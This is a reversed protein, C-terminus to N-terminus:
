WVSIENFFVRTGGSYLSVTLSSPVFSGARYVPKCEYRDALGDNFMKQAILDTRNKLEAAPQPVFLRNEEPIRAGTFDPIIVGQELSGDSYERLAKGLADVASVDTVQLSKVMRYRYDSGCSWPSEAEMRYTVSVVENGRIVIAVGHEKEFKAEFGLVYAPEEGYPLPIILQGSDLDALVTTRDMQYKRAAQEGCGPVIFDDILADCIKGRLEESMSCINKICKDAYTGYIGPAKIIELNQNLTESVRKETVGAATGLMRWENWCRCFVSSEEIRKEIRAYIDASYDICYYVKWPNRIQVYYDYEFRRLPDGPFTNGQVFYVRIFEQIEPIFDSLGIKGDLEDAIFVAPNIGEILLGAINVSDTLSKSLYGRKAAWLFLYSVPTCSFERITKHDGSTLEERKIDQTLCYEYIVKESIAQSDFIIDTVNRTRKPKPAAPAAAKIEPVSAAPLPTEIHTRSYDAAIDDAEEEDARKQFIRYLIIIAIECIVGASWIMMSEKTIGTLFAAASIGLILIFFQVGICPVIIMKRGKTYRVVSLVSTIIWLCMCAAFIFCQYRRDGSLKLCGNLTFFAAAGAEALSQIILFILKWVPKKNENM